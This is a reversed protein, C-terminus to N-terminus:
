KYEKSTDVIRLMGRQQFRSKGTKERLARLGKRGETIGWDQRQDSNISQISATMHVVSTSFEVTSGFPVRFPRLTFPRWSDISAHGDASQLRYARRPLRFLRPMLPRWRVLFHSKWTIMEPKFGIKLGIFLHFSAFNFTSIPASVPSTVTYHHAFNYVHHHRPAAHLPHWVPKRRMPLECARLWYTGVEPM